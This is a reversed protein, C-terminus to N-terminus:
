TPRPRPTWSSCTPPIADVAWLLVDEFNGDGTPGNVQSFSPDQGPDRYTFTVGEITEQLQYAKQGNSM